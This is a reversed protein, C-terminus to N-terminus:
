CFKSVFTVLSGGTGRMRRVTDFVVTTIVRHSYCVYSSYLLSFLDLRLSSHTLTYICLSTIVLNMTFVSKVKEVPIDNFPLCM